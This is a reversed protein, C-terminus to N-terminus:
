HVRQDNLITFVREAMILQVTTAVHKSTILVLRYIMDSPKKPPNTDHSQCLRQLILFVPYSPEGFVLLM